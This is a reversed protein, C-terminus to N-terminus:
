PTIEIHFPFGNTCTCCSPDFYPDTTSYFHFPPGCSSTFQPPLANWYPCPSPTLSWNASGGSGCCQLTWTNACQSNDQGRWTDCGGVVGIYSLVASTNTMCSTGVIGPTTISLHLTNPIANPCCQTATQGGGGGSGPLCPACNPVATVTQQVSPNGEFNIDTAFHWTSCCDPRPNDTLNYFVTIYVGPPQPILVEIQAFNPYAFLTMIVPMPGLAGIVNTPQTAKWACAVEGDAATVNGVLALTYTGNAVAFQAAMSSLTVAWTPPTFPVCYSCGPCPNSALSSGSGSMPCVPTLTLTPPQAACPSPTVATLTIPSCCGGGATFGSYIVAGGLLSLTWLLGPTGGQTTIVNSLVAIGGPQGGPSFQVGQFTCASTPVLVWYGNLDGCGGFAFGMATFSWSSPFHGTCGCPVLAGSGSGSGPAPNPCPCCGWTSILEFEGELKVLCGAVMRLATERAYLANCPIGTPSGEVTLYDDLLVDPCATGGTTTGSGSTTVGNNGPFPVYRFVWGTGNKGTSPFLFVLSGEPVDMLGTLERALFTGEIAGPPDALEGPGDADIVEIFSYFPGGGGPGGTIQASIYPLSAGLLDGRTGYGGQEREALEALRIMEEIPISQHRAYRWNFEGPTTPHDM